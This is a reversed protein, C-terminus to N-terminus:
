SNENLLELGKQTWGAKWGELYIYKRPNQGGSPPNPEVMNYGHIRGQIFGDQTELNPISHITPM